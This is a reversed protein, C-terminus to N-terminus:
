TRTYSLTPVGKGSSDCYCLTGLLIQTSQQERQSVCTILCFINGKKEFLVHVWPPFVTFSVTWFTSGRDASPNLRPLLTVQSGRSLLFSLHLTEGGRTWSTGKYPSLMVVKESYLSMKGLHTYLKETEKKFTYFIEDVFNKERGGASFLFQGEAKPSYFIFLVLVASFRPGSRVGRRLLIDM